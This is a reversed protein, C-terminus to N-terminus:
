KTPRPLYTEREPKRSVGRQVFARRPAYFAGCSRGGIGVNGAGTWRFLRAAKKAAGRQAGTSDNGGSQNRGNSRGPFPFGSVTIEDTAPSINGAGTQPFDVSRVFARRPANFAGCSKGGTGVNGAGTWRFLRAAKKAAGRQAGASDNGGSRNRRNSRHPFPFGSVTIGNTALSINGAGTQPCDESRVFTRRPANFAGFSRGGTGVNGAGTV